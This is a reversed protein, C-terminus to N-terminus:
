IYIYYKITKIIFSYELIVQINEFFLIFHHIKFLYRYKYHKNILVFLFKDDYKKIYIFLTM